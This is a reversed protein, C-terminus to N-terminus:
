IIKKRGSFRTTSSFINLFITPGSLGCADIYHPAHANCAPYSPSCVCVCVCVCVCECVSVCVCMSVCECVSVCVSVCVCGCVRECACVSEVSVCV